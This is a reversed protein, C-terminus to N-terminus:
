RAAIQTASRGGRSVWQVPRENFGARVFCEGGRARVQECVAVAQPRTAFGALSLRYVTGVRDLDFTGTSPAYDAVSQVRAIVRNWATEVRDANRFAGLQVVFGGKGTQRVPAAPVPKEVAAFRVPGPAAGILPASMEEPQRAAAQTMLYAPEEAPAAASLLSAPIERVADTAAAAVPAPAPEVAPAFAPEAVSVAETVVAPAAPAVPAEAQQQAPVPALALQTPMGRDLAPTVGLLGAVQDWATKPRAFLAWEIMRRGLEEPPLDQAATSQAENWRGALAYGLALNQRAKADAGEVRAAAELIEVGAQPDGALAIALGRDSEGVKGALQALNSRATEWEGLAILALARNLAARPQAPDLTLADSFASEASNFRGALLYAQGLLTRYAADRPSAAVAMEAFAVAKVKDRANLAKAAQEAAKAAQRDGQVASSSLSAPRSGAPKCGVTVTALILASSALKTLISTKM